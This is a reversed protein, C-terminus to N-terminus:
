ADRSPDRDSVLLSQAVLLALQKVRQKSVVSQRDGLSFPHRAPWAARHLTVKTFQGVPTEDVEDPLCSAGAPYRDAIHNACFGAFRAHGSWTIQM